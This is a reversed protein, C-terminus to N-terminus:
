KGIGLAVNILQYLEGFSGVLQLMLLNFSFRKYTIAVGSILSLLSLLSLPFFFIKLYFMNFAVGLSFGILSTSFGMRLVTGTFRHKDVLCYRWGYKRFLRWFTQNAVVKRFNIWGTVGGHITGRTVGGGFGASVLRMLLDTDQSRRFAPDFGGVKLAASRRFAMLGGSPEWRGELGEFWTHNVEIKSATVDKLIKPNVEIPVGQLWSLGHKSFLEDVFGIFNSPLVHDSGIWVILENAAEPVMLSMAYGTGLGEHDYFVRVPTPSERQFQLVMGETEDRSEGICILIESPQPDLTKVSKFCYPLCWGANRTPLILSVSM